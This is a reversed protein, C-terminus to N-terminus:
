NCILTATPEASGTSVVIPNMAAAKCTAVGGTTISADISDSVTWRPAPLPPLPCGKPVAVNLTYTQANDAVTHDLTATTPTISLSFSCATSGLSAVPGCGVLAACGPIALVFCCLVCRKM